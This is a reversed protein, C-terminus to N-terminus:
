LCMFLLCLTSSFIFAKLHRIQSIRNADFCPIYRWMSLIWSFLRCFKLFRSLFKRHLSHPLLKKVLKWKVVCALDCLPTFGKLQWYQSLDNECDDPRLIWVKIWMFMRGKAQLTHLLVNVCYPCTLYSREINWVQFYEDCSIM